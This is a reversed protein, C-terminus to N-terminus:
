SCQLFIVFSECLEIEKLQLMRNISFIKIREGRVSAIDSSEREGWLFEGANELIKRVVEFRPPPPIQLVAVFGNFGLEIRCLGCWRM